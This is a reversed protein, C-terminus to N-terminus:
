NRTEASRHASRRIGRDETLRHIRRDREEQPTASRHNISSTHALQEVALAATERWSATAAEAKLSL